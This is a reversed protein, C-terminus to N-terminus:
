SRRTLGMMLQRSRSISCARFPASHSDVRELAYPKGCRGIFIYHDPIGHITRVHACEFSVSLADVVNRPTAIRHIQSTSAVIIRHLNPVDLSHSYGMEHRM